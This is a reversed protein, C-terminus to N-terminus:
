RRPTHSYDREPVKEQHASENEETPNDMGNNNNSIHQLADRMGRHDVDLKSGLNELPKKDKQLM